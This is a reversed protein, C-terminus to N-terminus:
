DCMGYPCAGPTSLDDNYNYNSAPAPRNRKQINDMKDIDLNGSNIMQQVKFQNADYQDYNKSPARRQQKMYGTANQTGGSSYQQHIKKYDYAHAYKAIPVLFMIVLVLFFRSM